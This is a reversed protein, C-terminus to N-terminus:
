GRRQFFTFLCIFIHIFDWKFVGSCIVVSVEYKQRTIQDQLEFKEAELQYMWEWLEKAKERYSAGIWCQPEGQKQGTFHNKEDGWGAVWWRSSDRRTWTTSTWRNGDRAWSGRRRRERRRGKAVASKPRCALWLSWSRRELYRFFHVLSSLPSVLKQM